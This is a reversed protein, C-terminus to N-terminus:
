FCTVKATKKETWVDSSIGISPVLKMGLFDLLALEQLNGM